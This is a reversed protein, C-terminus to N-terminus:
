YCIFDPLSNILLCGMHLKISLIGYVMRNIKVTSISRAGKRGMGWTTSFNIISLFLVNYLGM